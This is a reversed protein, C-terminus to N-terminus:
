TSFTLTISHFSAGREPIEIVLLSEGGTKRFSPILRSPPAIVYNIMIAVIDSNNAGEGYPMSHIYSSTGEGVAIAKNYEPLTLPFTLPSM